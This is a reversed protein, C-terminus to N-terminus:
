SIGKRPRAVGYSDLRHLLTRRSMGLMRAAKTQNGACAALADLIRRRELADLEARVGGPPEPGASRPAARLLAPPPPIPEEVSAVTTRMKEMPLHEATIAPGPCLLAAREMVNRLERINGPWSYARLLALVEPALDPAPSRGMQAAARDLFLRALGEIEGIRARLPPIVLSIGNLRFYLDRRFGGRAIEAELDRNTAAVFRVDIPRPKLGGVRLVQRTEIVRLLKAQTAAPMEGVEDLFVTGGEASELLGPKAAVAGTFAGKEHGFLESELLTEALAACSLGLFPKGARPSLRHVREALVEKGAGTEGLILVSITGAAVREVLKHLRQMAPDVVLMDGPGRLRPTTSENHLDAGAKALLADPGRGDRPYCAVGVRVRAGREALAATISTAVDAAREPTTDVLLAELEGPAYAGVVDIPRLREFLVQPVIPPGREAAGPGVAGDGGHIRVLAFPMGSQESRACEDELRAEFYDHAWLRRPRALSARSQIIIMTSGLDIVEGAAVAVPAGPAVPTERVTTGNSSGLDEVRMGGGADIHLVAHQRSLSRDHIQIRNTDARGITVAGEDPLPHTASVGATVVNLYFRSKVATGLTREPLTTTGAEGHERM